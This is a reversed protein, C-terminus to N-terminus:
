APVPEELAEFVAAVTPAMALGSAEVWRQAQEAPAYALVPAGAGRLGSLLRSARHPAVAGTSVLVVSRADRAPMGVVAGQGAEQLAAALMAAAARDLAGAVPLVAIMAPLAPTDRQELAALLTRAGRVALSPGYDSGEREVAIRAIAPEALSQMAQQEDTSDAAEALLRAAGDADGALLRQYFREADSLAARDSLMVDLFGFGPLHRGLVVLCATLAPTLILGVPGWLAAWFLSSLVLALPTIGVSHGLLWPELVYTVVIDVVAFLVVVLIVTTWGPTTAFAMVLPFLASLPAGLFPVFRLAFGLVGWLPANPVGLAYLGVGMGLGFCANVVMQMLLFRGVRHTAEQMARTTRPMEDVGALRLARDRVDERQVLLFAMLLLTIALMALPGLVLKAAGLAAGFPSGPPAAVVVQQSPAPQMDAGLRDILRAVETIPGSSGSLADLKTRLEAEYRPLEALLLYAQTVVVQVLGLMVGAVVTLILLAAAVRPVRRRQMWEAVPLAAITLLLALALPALVDRGLYLGAIVIAALLLRTAMLDPPTRSPRFPAM